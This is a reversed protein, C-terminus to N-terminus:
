VLRTMLSDGSMVGEEYIKLVTLRQKKAYELLIKKHRALTEVPDSNEEARSKRLYISCNM